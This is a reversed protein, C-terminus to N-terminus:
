KLTEDVQGTVIQIRLVEDVDQLVYKEDIAVVFLETSVDHEVPSASFQLSDSEHHM